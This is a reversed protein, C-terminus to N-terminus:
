INSIYLPLFQSYINIFMLLYCCLKGKVGGFPGICFNYATRQLKHEYGLQLKYQTGHEVTGTSAAFINM